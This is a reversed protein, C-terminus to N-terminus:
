DLYDRLDVSVSFLDVVSRDGLPEGLDVVLPTTPNGQCDFADGPPPTAAFGIRVEEATYHIEPGVLRDGIEIGGVCERETVMLHIDTSGPGPAEHSPDLAWNVTNLGDPTSITLPCEDPSSAGTWRIGASDIEFTMFALGSDETFSVAIVEDDSHHLVRWGDSPWFAGEGTDLFSAFADDLGDIELDEMPPIDDLASIPFAPGGPCGVMTDDPPDGDGVDTSLLSSPPSANPENSVPEGCAAVLIAVLMLGITTRM